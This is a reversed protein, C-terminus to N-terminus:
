PRIRQLELQDAGDPLRLRVGDWSQYVILFLRYESAPSGSPITLIREDMYIQGPTMGSTQVTQDGYHQIAGDNQAVLAGNADILQVGISYDLPPTTEARWWLRVDIQTPTVADIDVGYFPLVDDFIQPETLPPAQMLQALYCYARTCDGIVQQLPHTVELRAFATQVDDNFWDGTIFWIRRLVSAAAQDATITDVLDPMLYAREMFDMYPDDEGGLKFLLVDGPRASANIGAFVDRMPVRPPITPQTAFTALNVLVFLSIAGLRIPLGRWRMPVQTFVAGLAVGVGLLAFSVFRPAYVAAIFNAILYLAPTLISWILALWYARRRAFLLAGTLLIALYLGWLGNTAADILKGINEPTTVLTSVGIGAVGRATGGEIGSNRLLIVHSIFIPLWPLWLVAGVLGALLGQGIRKTSLRTWVLVYMVQALVFLVLLYHTYLMLTLAMGYMIATRRSPRIIWTQLAWISFATVLMVLPYPRIDLAYNFFLHNGTLVLLAFVGATRSKFGRRAIQYTLALAPMVFLVGLVRATFEADGVLTRWTNFSVFWLPAQNDQLEIQWKLTDILTGNTARYSLEEDPHMHLLPLTALLFTVVVALAAVGGAVQLRSSKM